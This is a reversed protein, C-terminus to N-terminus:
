ASFAFYGDASAAITSPSWAINSGHWNNPDSLLFSGDATVGRIVYIHGAKTAPASGTGSVIVKAGNRVANAVEDTNALETMHLGYAKAVAPFASWATGNSTEYGNQMNFNAMDEPTVKHNTLTSVIIAESTPGCGGGGITGGGGVSYNTGAWRLDHQSYYVTDGVTEGVQTGYTNEHTPASAKPKPAAKTAPKAIVTSAPSLSTAKSANAYAQEVWNAAQDAEPLFQVHTGKTYAEWAKWGQVKQLEYAHTVNTVPDLNAQPDRLGVTWTGNPGSLMQYLGVAYFGGGAGSNIIYPSRQSEAGLALAIGIRLDNGRWGANYALLAVDHETIQPGIPDGHNYDYNARAQAITPKQALTQYFQASFTPKGASGAEPTMAPRVVPAPEPKLAVEFANTLVPKAKPNTIAEELSGIVATIWAQKPKSYLNPDQKFLNNGLVTDVTKEFNSNGGKFNLNSPAIGTDVVFRLQSVMLQLSLQDKASLNEISAIEVELKDFSTDLDKRVPSQNSPQHTNSSNVSIILQSALTRLDKLHEGVNTGNVDSAGNVKKKMDSIFQDYKGLEAPKAAESKAPQPLVEPASPPSSEPAPTNEPAPTETSTNGKGIIGGASDSTSPNATPNTSDGPTSETSPTASPDQSSSSEPSPTAAPNPSETTTPLPNGSGEGIIGGTQAKYMEFQKQAQIVTPSTTDATKGTTGSVQETNAIVPAVLATIQDVSTATFGNKTNIVTTSLQKQVAKQATDKPAAALDAPVENPFLVMLQAMIVRQADAVKTDADISKKDLVSSVLANFTDTSALAAAKLTPNTSQRADQAPHAAAWEQAMKDAATQMNKVRFVATDTGKPATVPANAATELTKAATTFSILKAPAAAEPSLAGSTNGPNTSAHTNPAPAAAVPPKETATKGTVGGGVIVAAVAAAAGVAGVGVKRRRQKTRLAIAANSEAVGEKKVAAIDIEPAQNNVVVSLHRDPAATEPQKETAAAVPPEVVEAERARDAREQATPAAPQKPAPRPAQHRPRQQSPQTPQSPIATQVRTPEVIRPAETPARLPQAPRQKKSEDAFQFGHEELKLGPLAPGKGKALISQTYALKAGQLEVDGAEIMHSMKKVWELFHGELEHRLVMADVTEHPAPEPVPFGAWEMFVRNGIDTQPAPQQDPTNHPM